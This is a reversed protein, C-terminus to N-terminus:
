RRKRGRDRLEMVSWSLLATGATIAILVVIWGFFGIGGDGTQVPGPAVTSPAIPASTPRPTPAPGAALPVTVGIVPNGKTIVRSLQTSTWMRTGDWATGNVLYDGAQDIDNLSYPIVFPIPAAGIPAVADYGLIEGTGPNVLVVSTYSTANASGDLGDGMVIGSVQAKLLDPMFTLPIVVDAIAPDPVPVAVGTENLWALDGDILKAVVSYHDGAAIGARAYTLTFAVPKAGPSAQETQALVTGANAGASADVLAVILKADKSPVHNERWTM